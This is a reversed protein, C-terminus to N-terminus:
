RGGIHLVTAPLDIDGLSLHDPDEEQPWSNVQEDGDEDSWIIWPRAHRDSLVLHHGEEFAAYITADLEEVTTLTVLKQDDRESV